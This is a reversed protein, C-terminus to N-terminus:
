GFNIRCNEVLTRAKKQLELSVPDENKIGDEAKDLIEYYISWGNKEKNFQELLPNSNSTLQQITENLRKVGMRFFELGQLNKEKSNDAFFSALKLAFRLYVVTLPIRSVFCGTFPDIGNKIDEFPWPLAKVYYSFMLTRIYDGIIKGTAAMRIAEAAFAEKDHRMILGDKHVYRLN